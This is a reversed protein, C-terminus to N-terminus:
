SKYKILTIKRINYNLLEIKNILYFKKERKFNIIKLYFKKKKKIIRFNFNNENTLIKSGWHNGFNETIIKKFKNKNFEWVVVKKCSEFNWNDFLYITDKVLVLNLDEQNCLYYKISLSDNKVKFSDNIIKKEIIQNQSILSNTSFLLILIIFNLIKM